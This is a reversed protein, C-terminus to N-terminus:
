SLSPGTMEKFGTKLLRIQIKVAIPTRYIIYIYEEKISIKSDRQINQLYHVQMTQHCCMQCKAQLLFHSGYIHTKLCFYLMYFHFSSFYCLIFIIKAFMSSNLASDFKM